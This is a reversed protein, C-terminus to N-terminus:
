RNLYDDIVDRIHIPSLELQNCLDIFQQAEEYNTFVDLIKTREIVEVGYVRHATGEEDIVSSEIVRYTVNGQLMESVTCGIYAALKQLTELKLNEQEREILSITDSHVGCEEAMEFQSLKNKKRYEKIYQALYIREPM